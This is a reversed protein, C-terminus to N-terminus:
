VQSFADCFASIGLTIYQYVGELGGQIQLQPSLKAQLHHIQPIHTLLNHVLRDFGVCVM